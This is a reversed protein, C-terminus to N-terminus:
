HCLQLETRRRIISSEYIDPTLHLYSERIPSFAQKPIYFPSGQGLTGGSNSASQRANTNALKQEQSIHIQSNDEGDMLLNINLQKIKPPLRKDGAQEAPDLGETHKKHPHFSVDSGKHVDHKSDAGFIDRSGLSTSGDGSQTIYARPYRQLLSISECVTAPKSMAERIKEQQGSNRLYNTGIARSMKVSVSGTAQCVGM